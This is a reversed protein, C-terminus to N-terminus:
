QAQRPAETPRRRSGGPGTVLTIQTKSSCSWDFWYRASFPQGRRFDGFASEVPELDCPARARPRALSLFLPPRPM